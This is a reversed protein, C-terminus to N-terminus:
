HLIINKLTRFNIRGKPKENFRLDVSWLSNDIHKVESSDCFSTSAQQQWPCQMLPWILPSVCLLRRNRTCWHDFSARHGERIGSQDYNSCRSGHQNWLLCMHIVGTIM